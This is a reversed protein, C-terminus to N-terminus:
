KESTVQAGKLVARRVYLIKLHHMFHLEESAAPRYIEEEKTNHARNYNNLDKDAKDEHKIEIFFMQNSIM